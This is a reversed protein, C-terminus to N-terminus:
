QSRGAGGFIPDTAFPSQPRMPPLQPTVLLTIDPREEVVGQIMTMLQPTFYRGYNFCEAPMYRSVPKPQDCLYGLHIGIAAGLREDYYMGGSSGSEANASTAFLASDDSISPGNADLLDIRLQARPFRDILGRSDHLIQSERVDARFALLSITKRAQFRTQRLTPLVAGEAPRNLRLLAFDFSSDFRHRTDAWPSLVYDITFIDRVTEDRNFLVFICEKIPLLLPTQRFPPAPVKYFVHAVTIATQNNGVLWATAIHTIGPIAPDICELRGVSDFADRPGTRGALSHENPDVTFIIAQGASSTLILFAVAWGIARLVWAGM